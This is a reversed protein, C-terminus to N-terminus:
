IQPLFTVLQHLQCAPCPYSLAALLVLQSCAPDQSTGFIEFLHKQSKINFKSLTAKINCFVCVFVLM